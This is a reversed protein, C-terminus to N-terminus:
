AAVGKRRSITEEARQKRETRERAAHEPFMTHVAPNVRWASVEALPNHPAVPDLWGISVLAAMTTYLDKRTEPAELKIYARAVDRVTIRDLRHALIHGAIWQAHGTLTTSLMTEYARILHPLLVRRMYSAAMAATAASVVMPVRPNGPAAPPAPSNGVVRTYAVEILHFTLCIRAFYAQWKGLASRLQKLTDPMRMIDLALADISHRHQHAADHLKVTQPRDDAGRPPCLIALTEVTQHYRKLAARNPVRDV